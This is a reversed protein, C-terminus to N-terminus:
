VKVGPRRNATAGILGIINCEEDHVRRLHNFPYPLESIDVKRNLRIRTIDRRM